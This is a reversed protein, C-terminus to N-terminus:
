KMITKLSLNYLSKNTSTVSLKIIYQGDTLDELNICSVYTGKAKDTLDVSSSKVFRDNKYVSIAAIVKNEKKFEDEIEFGIESVETNYTYSYTKLSYSTMSDNIHYYTSFSNYGYGTSNIDAYVNFDDTVGGIMSYYDVKQDVLMAFAETHESSSKVDGDNTLSVFSIYFDKNPQVTFNGGGNNSTITAVHKGDEDTIRARIYDNDWTNKDYSSGHNLILTYDVKDSGDVYYACEVPSPNNLSGNYDDLNIIKNLEMKDNPIEVYIGYISIYDNYKVTEKSATISTIFQYDLTLYETKNILDDTWGLFRYGSIQEHKGFTITEGFPVYESSNYQTLKVHGGDNSYGYIEYRIEISALTFKPYLTIDGRKEYEGFSEFPVKFEEDYYWGEFAYGAKKVKPLDEEELGENFYYYTQIENYLSDYKADSPLVYNISFLDYKYDPVIVSLSYADWAGLGLTFIIGVVILSTSKKNVTGMDVKFLTGLPYILSFVILVFLTIGIIFSGIVLISAIGLGWVPYWIVISLLWFLEWTRIRVNNCFKFIVVVVGILFELGKGLIELLTDEGECISLYISSAVSAIVFSSTICLSLFLGNPWGKMDIVLGLIVGIAICVLYILLSIMKKM